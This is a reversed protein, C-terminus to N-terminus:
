RSVNVIEVRISTSSKSPELTYWLNAHGRRSRSSVGELGATWGTSSRSHASTDVINSSIRGMANRIVLLM